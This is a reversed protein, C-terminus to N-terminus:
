RWCRRELDGTVLRQSRSTQRHDALRLALWSCLRIGFKLGAGM